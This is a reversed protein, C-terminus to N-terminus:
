AIPDDFTITVRMASAGAELLPRWTDGWVRGPMNMSAFQHWTGAPMRRLFVISRYAASHAARRVRVNVREGASLTNGFVMMDNRAAVGSGDITCALDPAALQKAHRTV